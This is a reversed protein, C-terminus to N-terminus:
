VNQNDHLHKSLEDYLNEIPENDICLRKWISYNLINWFTMARSMKEKQFRKIAHKDFYKYSLPVLAEFVGDELAWKNPSIAFGSKKRKIIFDPIQLKTAVGRLINKPSKLKKEWRVSFANKMLKETLFPFVLLKNNAEGLKSWIGNTISLSGQLDSLALIDYISYDKLQKISEYKNIIIDQKSVHFCDCVWDVDGYKHISYVVHNPDDLTVSLRNGLNISRIVGNGKKIIRPVVKVLPFLRPNNLINHFKKYKLFRYISNHISLGFIADAGQGSVIIEKEPIFCNKFMLYFMVSQLHHLPEESIKISKVMGYLYDNCHTEFVVHKSHFANAASIAYQKELDSNEDEFPYATSFSNSLGLIKQCFAFLISSDLGGSLLVSVKEKIPILGKIGESLIGYTSEIHEKEIRGDDYDTIIFDNKKQKKISCGTSDFKIELDENFSLQFVDKYMTNPPTIHRYIFFEPIVKENESITVGAKRLMNIHTSCFFGDESNSHYYISRSSNTARNVLLTNAKKDFSISALIGDKEFEIDHHIGETICFGHNNKKVESFFSDVIFLAYGPNLCLENVIYENNKFRDKLSNKTFAVFFM